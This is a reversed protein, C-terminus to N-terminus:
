DTREAAEAGGCGGCPVGTAMEDGARYRVARKDLMASGAHMKQARKLLHRHHDLLGQADAVEYERPV